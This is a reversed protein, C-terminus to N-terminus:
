AHLTSGESFGILVMLVAWLPRWYGFVFLFVFVGWMLGSYLLARKWIKPSPSSPVPQRAPLFVSSPPPSAIARSTEPPRATTRVAELQRVAETLTEQFQRLADRTMQERQESEEDIRAQWKLVNALEQRVEDLKLPLNIYFARVEEDIPSNVPQSRPSMFLGGEPEHAAGNTLQDVFAYFQSKGIKVGYAQEIQRLMNAKSLGQMKMTIIEERYPELRSENM